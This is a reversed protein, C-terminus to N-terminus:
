SQFSNFCAFYFSMVVMSFLSSPKFTHFCISSVFIRSTLPDFGCASSAFSVGTLLEEEQLDPDLYAPLLKKVGLADALSEHFMSFDSVFQVLCSM